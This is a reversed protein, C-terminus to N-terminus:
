PATVPLHNASLHVNVRGHVVDDTVAATDAGANDGLVPGSGWYGLIFRM